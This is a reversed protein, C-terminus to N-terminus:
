LQSAQYARESIGAASWGARILKLRGRDSVDDISESLGQLVFVACGSRLSPAPKERPDQVDQSPCEVVDIRDKCCRRRKDARSKISSKGSHAPHVHGLFRFVFLLDM